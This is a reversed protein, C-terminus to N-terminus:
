EPVAIPDVTASGLDLTRFLVAALAGAVLQPILFLIAEAPGIMGMVLEGMTVAPNFHAGSVGGVAYSGALVTGAIAIGYYSNGEGAKVLDASCM